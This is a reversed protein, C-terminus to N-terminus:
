EKLLFTNIKHLVGDEVLFNADAHDIAVTQGTLDEVSLNDM